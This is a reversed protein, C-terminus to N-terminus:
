AGAATGAAQHAAGALNRAMGRYLVAHFPTMSWWYLHGFLGHPYFVARQRYLTGGHTGPEVRM